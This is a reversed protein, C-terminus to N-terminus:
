ERNQQNGEEVKASETSHAFNFLKVMTSGSEEQELSFSPVKMQTKQTEGYIKSRKRKKKWNHSTFHIAYNSFRDLKLRILDLAHFENTHLNM